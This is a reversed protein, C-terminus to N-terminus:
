HKQGYPAEWSGDLYRIYFKYGDKVSYPSIHSYYRDIVKEVICGQEVPLVYSTIGLDRMIIDYAELMKFATVPRKKAPDITLPGAIIMNNEIYTGLLAM